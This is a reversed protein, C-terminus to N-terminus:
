MEIPTVTVTAKNVLKGSEKDFIESECVIINKGKNLVKAKVVLRDDTAPRMYNVKMEVTVVHQGIPLLTAAAHCSTSDLVTALLGGHYFGNGQLLEDRKSLEIQAQGESLDILEAGIYQLFSIGKFMKRIEEERKKDM